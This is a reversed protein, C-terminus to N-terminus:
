RGQDQLPGTELGRRPPGPGKRMLKEFEFGPLDCPVVSPARLSVRLTVPNTTTWAKLGSCATWRANLSHRNPLETQCRSQANRATRSFCVPGAVTWNCLARPVQHPLWRATRKGPTSPQLIDLTPPHVVLDSPRNPSRATLQDRQCGPPLSVPQVGSGRRHIETKTAWCALAGRAAIHAPEM